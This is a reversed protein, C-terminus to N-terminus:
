NLYGRRAKWVSDGGHRAFKDRIALRHIAGKVVEYPRGILVAADKILMGELGEFDDVKLKPYHSKPAM